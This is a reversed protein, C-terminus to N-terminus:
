SRREADGGAKDSRIQGVQDVFGGQQSGSFALRGYAHFLEVIADLADRGSEFLFLAHHVLVLLLTHGIVLAAVGNHSVAKGIGIRHM